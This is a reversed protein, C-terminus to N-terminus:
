PRSDGPALVSDTPDIGAGVRNHRNTYLDDGASHREAQFRVDGGMRLVNQGGNPRHPGRHNDSNGPGADPPNDALLPTFDGMSREPPRHRGHSDVHGLSYAYCGGLRRAQRRFEAPDISRLSEMDAASPYSAGDHSGCRTRFGEPLLGGERLSVFYSGSYGSVGPDPYRGGAQDAHRNLSMGLTGLTHRCAAERYTTWARNVSPFAVIAALAMIGGGVLLDALRWSPPTWEAWGSGPPPAPRSIVPMNQRSVREVARRALDAPLAADEGDRPLLALVERLEGAKSQLDPCESVAKAARGKDGDDICGVVLGVIDCEKDSM